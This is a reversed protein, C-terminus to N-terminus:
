KVPEAPGAQQATATYLHCDSTTEKFRFYPHFFLAARADGSGEALDNLWVGDPEAHNHVHLWFGKHLNAVLGGGVKVDAVSKVNFDIIVGSREDVSLKGQMVTAVHQTLDKAQFRPNPVVNYDLVSRGNVFRRHGNTLMMAALIDEVQQENKDAQKKAAAANAYKLTEKMVRESEKKAADSSLAHGDKQLTREIPIGNVFFLDNVETENKKVKGNKDTQIVQDTVRCEYRERESAVKRQNDLARQLLQSPSPLPTNAAPTQASCLLGGALGLGITGTLLIRHPM